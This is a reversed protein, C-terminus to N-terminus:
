IYQFYYEGSTSDTHFVSKNALAMSVKNGPEFIKFFEKNNRCLEWFAYFGHVCLASTASKCNCSVLLSEPSISFTVKYEKQGKAQVGIILSTATFNIVQDKAYPLPIRPNIVGFDFDANLVYPTEFPFICPQLKTNTAM